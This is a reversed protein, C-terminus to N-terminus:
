QASLHDWDGSLADLRARLDEPLAGGEATALNERLHEISGTGSLVCNIGTEYLCYRYALEPVTGCVGSDVADRVVSVLERSAASLLGEDIQKELYASLTEVDRMARRVAFMDFVGVNQTRASMLIDKRASPNLMNFGVMIVDYGDDSLARKLMAHQRDANFCETIGIARIKGKKKMTELAPLVPVAIADYRKAGVAHLMYIDIHDVRLNALSKDLTTEVEALTKARGEVGGHLKTCIVVEDRPVDKLTDGMITETGYSESSDFVNIGGELAARVVARSEAASRGTRAGLRSPGGGGLGMVSVDFGTRGFTVKRM